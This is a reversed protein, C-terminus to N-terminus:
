TEWAYRKKKGQPQEGPPSYYRRDEQFPSAQRLSSGPSVLDNTQTFTRTNTMNEPLTATQRTRGTTRRGASVMPDQYAITSENRTSAGYVVPRGTQTESVPPTRASVEQQPLPRGLRDFNTQLSPTISRSSTSFDASSSKVDTELPSEDRKKAESVIKIKPEITSIKVKKAM